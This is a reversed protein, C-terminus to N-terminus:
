TARRSLIFIMINIDIWGSETFKKIIDDDNDSGIKELCKKTKGKM